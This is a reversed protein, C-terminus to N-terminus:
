LVASENEFCLFVINRRLFCRCFTYRVFVNVYRHRLTAWQEHAHRRSSKVIKCQIGFAEAVHMESPFEIYFEEKARKKAEILVERM